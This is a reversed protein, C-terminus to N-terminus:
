LISNLKDELSCNENLIILSDLPLNIIFLNPGTVVKKLFM